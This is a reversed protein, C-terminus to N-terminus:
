FLLCVISLMNQRFFDGADADLRIPSRGEDQLLDDHQQIPTIKTLFIQLKNKVAFRFQLTTM